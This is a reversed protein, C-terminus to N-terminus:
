RFNKSMAGPPLVLKLPDSPLWSGRVGQASVARVQVKHKRDPKLGLEELPVRLTDSQLPFKHIKVGETTQEVKVEVHGTADVPDVTGLIIFDEIRLDKITFSPLLKLEEQHNVIKASISNQGQDCNLRVSCGLETKNANKIGLLETLGIIMKDQHLADKKIQLRGTELLEAMPDEPLSSAFDVALVVQNETKLSMKTEITRAEADNRALSFGCDKVAKMYKEVFEAEVELTNLFVNTKDELSDKMTKNLDNQAITLKDSQSGILPLFIQLAKRLDERNQEFHRLIKSLSSAYKVSLQALASGDLKKLRCLVTDVHRVVREAAAVRDNSLNPLSPIPKRRLSALPTLFITIPVKPRGGTKLQCIM